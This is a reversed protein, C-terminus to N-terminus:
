IRNPDKGCGFRGTMLGNRYEILATIVEGSNDKESTAVNILAMIGAEKLAERIRGNNANLRENIAISDLPQSIPRSM